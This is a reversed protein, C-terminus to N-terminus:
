LIVPKNAAAKMLAEEHFSQLIYLFGSKDKRTMLFFRIASIASVIIGAVSEGPAFIALTSSKM